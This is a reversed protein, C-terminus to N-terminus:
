VMTASHAPAFSDVQVVSDRADLAAVVALHEGRELLGAGAAAAAMERESGGRVKGARSLERLKKRAERAALITRLAGELEGLGQEDPGPVYIDSALRERAEGGDLLARAIRAELRDSPPASRAWSPFLMVGLLLAVPRSPLNGLFGELAVEIEHLSSEAAWRVFPLDAAPQGERHFRALAATGLYLHALADALRGTLREKRKLTGGLTMMAAEACVAFAASARDFRKFYVATAGRVPARDLLSNSWGLLTARVLNSALAGGHGFLARDFRPLDREQVARMEELAFPHCRIAGQGFIILTRTLINAGEVTIGIPLAQYAHALSNRPGRCIGAGAQVDMADNVVTRMSETLYAKVIASIVAPKQGADVAGSTLRRAADMQYVRGGIPGLREQIGEFQGIPMGFQERVSAYAGVVRMAKQAAGCALGPLSIGRGASLCDMLMRWGYGARAPGGIIADLPVFVDHGRTPGNLFPVGLPDHHEGAEVGPLHTPVLAVTLGLDERDGLLHDPDLLRFALGLLTAVPSLTIYRKDWVLRMGLVEAGEYNGRCVVGTSTISAADSGANPETLAFAPVEEGSALRPLYHEKQASTGYHLLLEAPGLSNPVMVTVAATVSRSSVKTVVASNAAASFGLGGYEQPIIMGMFGNRKIFDWLEPPLDGDQHIQWDDIRRCLEEVPGALFARERESLERPQFDLLKRWAPAGSFLEADWWVTGAELAAGETESIKPFVPALLPMVRSTLWARRVVPVGLAVVCLAFLGALTWFWVPSEVGLAAWAVFALTLPVVWALLARGIFLLWLALTVLLIWLLLWM